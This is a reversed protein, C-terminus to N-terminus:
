SSSVNRKGNLRVQKALGQRAPSVRDLGCAAFRHHPVCWGKHAPLQKLGVIGVAIGFRPPM